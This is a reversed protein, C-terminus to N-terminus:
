HNKSWKKHKWLTRLHWGNDTCEINSLVSRKLIREPLAFNPLLFTFNLITLQDAM